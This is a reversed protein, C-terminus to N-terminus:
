PFGLDFVLERMLPLYESTLLNGIAQFCPLFCNVSGYHLGANVLQPLLGLRFVLRSIAQPNVESFQKIILVCHSFMDSHQEFSYDAVAELVRGM